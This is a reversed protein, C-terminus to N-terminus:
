LTGLTMILVLFILTSLIIFKIDNRIKRKKILNTIMSIISIGFIIMSDLILLTLINGLTIGVMLLIIVNLVIISIWVWLNKQPKHGEPKVKKEEKDTYLNGTDPSGYAGM